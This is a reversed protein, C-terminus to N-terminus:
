PGPYSSAHAAPPQPRPHPRPPHHRPSLPRKGGGGRGEEGKHSERVHAVVLRGRRDKMMAYVM